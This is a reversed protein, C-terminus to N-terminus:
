QRLHQEALAALEASLSGAGLARRFSEKAEGSRGEGELALGLGLWWRGDAPSLRSAALYQEVAEHNRGLRHLVHGYFGLYEANAGAMSRSRALTRDAGPLDGKETQLRALSMAWGIQSANQDLGEQLVAMAEDVRRAELLLRLLMQRAQLYSPDLKVAAAAVDTAGSAQGAALLAQARRLEAESRERASAPLPSKEIVGPAVTSTGELAKPKAAGVTKIPAESSTAAKTVAPGSSPADNAVPSVPEPRGEGAMEKPLNELATAMRLADSIAGSSLETSKPPEPLATPLVAPAPPVEAVPPKDGQAPSREANLLFWAAGVVVGTLVVGGGLILLGRPKGKRAPPLARIERQLDPKGLEGARREELDRLMENILSM